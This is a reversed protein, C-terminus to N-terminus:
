VVSKRDGEKAGDAISTAILTLTAKLEDSPEVGEDLNLMSVLSAYVRDATTYPSYLDSVQGLETDSLSDSVTSGDVTGQTSATESTSSSSLSFLSFLADDDVDEANGQSSTATPLVFSEFLAGLGTDNEPVTGAPLLPSEVTTHTVDYTSTAGMGTQTGQIDGEATSQIGDKQHMVVQTAGAGAQVVTQTSANDTLVQPQGPPVYSMSQEQQTLNPNNFGSVM